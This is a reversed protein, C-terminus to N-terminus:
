FLFGCVRKCQTISTYELGLGLEWCLEIWDALGVLRKGILRDYELNMCRRWQKRWTASGQKWGRQQALRLFEESIPVTPNHKFAPFSTFFRSETM